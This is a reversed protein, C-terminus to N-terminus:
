EYESDLIEKLEAYLSKLEPCAMQIYREPWCVTSRVFLSGSSDRRAKVFSKIRSKLVPIDRRQFILEGIELFGKRSLEAPSVNNWFAVVDTGCNQMFSCTMLSAKRTVPETDFPVAVLDVQGNVFSDYAPSDAVLHGPFDFLIYDFGKSGILSWIGERLREANEPTYTYDGDELPSHIVYFSDPRGNADMYRSLVSDPDSLMNLEENRIRALRPNPNEFDVVMVRAGCEYALYSGFMVTHLSKGVGGKENFFSMTRM